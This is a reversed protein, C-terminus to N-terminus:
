IYNLINLFVPRGPSGWDSVFTEAHSEIQTQFQNASGKRWGVINCSLAAPHHSDTNGIHQIGLDRGLPEVVGFRALKSDGGEGRRVLPLLYLSNTEQFQRQFEEQGEGKVLPFPWTVV